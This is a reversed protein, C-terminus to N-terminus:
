RMRKQTTKTIHDAVCRLIVAAALQESLVFHFDDTNVLLLAVM